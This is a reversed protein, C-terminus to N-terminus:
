LAMWKKINKLESTHDIFAYKKDLISGNAKAIYYFASLDVSVNQHNKEYLHSKRSEKVTFNPNTQNKSITSVVDYTTDAYLKDCLLNYRKDLYKAYELHGLAAPHTDMQVGPPLDDVDHLKFEISNVDYINYATGYPELKWQYEEVSIPFNHKKCTDELTKFPYKHAIYKLHPRFVTTQFPEGFFQGVWPDFMNLMILEAESSKSILHAAEVKNIYEYAHQVINFWEQIWEKSYRPQYDLNGLTEYLDENYPVADNRAIGSWQCIVTDGKTPKLHTYIYTLANFIYNNGAGSQAYNLVKKYQLGLMDGFTPTSYSSYSCGVIFLRNHERIAM